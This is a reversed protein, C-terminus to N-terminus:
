KGELIANVESRTAEVAPRMFPTFFEVIAAYFAKFSGSYVRVGGLDQIATGTFGAEKKEVVRVTKKLAGAELKTWEQGAYRGTKYMPHERTGVPCRRRVENALVHAAKRARRRSETVVQQNAPGWNVNEIRM